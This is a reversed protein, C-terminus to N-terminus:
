RTSRRASVSNRRDMLASVGRATLIEHIKLRGKQTWVTNMRTDPTGDSHTIHVTKSQTYGLGMHQKYLIWQKNVKHQLGEEHLIQNLARASLDYDAAIQTTTLTGQSSLIQDVYQRVPEFDAIVQRQAENEAALALRKEEADALARLASPYDRPLNYGGTKRISPIVEHTIWRKFLRAEPKRSGLVLSYLGPENVCNTDNMPHGLNFRAREDDDLRKLADTPNSIELARCVDAAVLWPEGDVELTRLEGFTENRFIQLENM